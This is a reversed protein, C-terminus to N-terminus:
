TEWNPKSQYLFPHDYKKAAIKTINPKLFYTTISRCYFWFGNSSALDIGKDAKKALQEINWYIYWVKASTKKKWVCVWIIRRCVNARVWQNKGCGKFGNKCLLVISENKIGAMSIKTCNRFFRKLWYGKSNRKIYIRRGPLKPMGNIIGKWAMYKKGTFGEPFYYLFKKICRARQKSVTKSIRM